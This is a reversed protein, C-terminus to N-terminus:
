GFPNKLGAFSGVAYSGLSTELETKTEAIVELEDNNPLEPVQTEDMYGEEKPEEDGGHGGENMGYWGLPIVVALVLLVFIDIMIIAMFPAALYGGDSIPYKNTRWNKLLYTYLNNYIIEGFCSAVSILALVMGRVMKPIRKQLYSVMTVCVMFGSGTQFLTLFYCQWSTPDHVFCYLTMILIQFLLSFPVMFKAPLKDAARGTLLIMPVACLNSLIYQTQWM